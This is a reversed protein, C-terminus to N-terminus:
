ENPFHYKAKMFKLNVRSLVSPNLIVVKEFTNYSVSMTFYHKHYSSAIFTNYLVSTIMGLDQIVYNGIRSIQFNTTEKIGEGFDEIERLKTSM